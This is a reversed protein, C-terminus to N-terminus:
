KFGKILEICKKIANVAQIIDDETNDHSISVRITGNSYDSPVKIASIVHSLKDNKSDCASGTSIYIKRFDLMHVLSEGNIEKFSVSIIGPYGCEDGNLIYDLESEYLKEKFLHSLKSIHSYNDDLNKMNNRLAISMASIGAINETGARLGFEQLGGFILPHISATSKHFLFGVGRPGNFKHASASLFDINLERVDIKIHGVAQVADTHIMAGHKHCLNSIRKLDQITGIENNILMISVIKVNYNILIRELEDIDIKGNEFVKIYHVKYGLKELFSCANLIAHHEISSTVFHYSKDLQIMQQVIMNDSESGGSTFILEDSNCNILESIIERSKNLEKKADDSFTYLQSPNGYLSSVEVYKELAEQDIKTTAANDLYIVLM